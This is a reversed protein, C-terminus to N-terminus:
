EAPPITLFAGVMLRRPDEIGNADAIARWDGARRYYQAAIRSLTDGNQTVHSHTRDPSTLNLHALQEDLTKYERLGVTLTARLPIGDPSFLTFKQRVSEVVCRFGNRRQNGSAAGAIGAVASAVASVAGGVASAVAGAAAGLVDGIARSAASGANGELSSGPFQDNWIFTCIPPAHRTPEIKILQYIRDTLTTVSVAGKGMGHDTTDFFLELTLKEAQGRVFQQLPADLGPISIEAIQASKDWSLETPNYQLEIMEANRPSDWEVRLIAKAVQEM